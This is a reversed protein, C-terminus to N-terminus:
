GRFSRRYRNFLLSSPSWLRYTRKPTCPSPMDQILYLSHTEKNCV